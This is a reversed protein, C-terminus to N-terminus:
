SSAGAAHRVDLRAIFHLSGDFLLSAPQPYLGLHQRWSGISMGLEAFAREWDHRRWYNFPLTVGHRANGVHDMFRLLRRDLPGECLHDKIVVARGATRAAERLLLMPDDTHHLVDVFMVVDWSRDPFPIRDGDFPEVPIHTHERVLVDIGHVEVDPRREAIRRAVLGDGCGVDLVRAGQPLVAALHDCLVRVRRNHVYRGHVLEVVSM